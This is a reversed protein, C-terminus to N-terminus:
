ELEDENIGGENNEGDTDDENNLEVAENITTHTDETSHRPFLIASRYISGPTTNLVEGYQYCSELPEDEEHLVSYRHECGGPGILQEQIFQELSARKEKIM